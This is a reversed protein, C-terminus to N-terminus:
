ESSSHPRTTGPSAGAGRHGPLGALLEGALPHLPRDISWLARLERHVILGDVRVVVLSGAQVDSRVARESVVTPLHGAIVAARVAATSGLELASLPAPQGLTELASELSERTGSGPERLVMPTRALEEVGVSGRGVWSHRPAVVVVLEDTDVVQQHMDPTAAGSEIFGLEVHRSRLRELVTQSNLVELKISDDPRNRLFNELWAPLLYEAITLSAAISLEGARRAKLADVGAHLEHMSRLTSAAWGAVLSGAATPVSGTPSRELLRLGLQRELGRIRSSASPQAIGHAIAAKSLSGLEVVTVFLDLAALDPAGTPLPVVDHYRQM